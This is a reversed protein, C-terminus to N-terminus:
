KDKLPLQKPSERLQLDPPIHGERWLVLAIVISLVVRYWAFPIFNNTRVFQLLWKVAIFATIMSIVFGLALEGMVAPIFLGARYADWAMYLSAALMTPVGLLFSFETASVRSLGCLMAAIITAGSRSTGPLVAAIIQSIGVWIVINWTITETPQYRKLFKEAVFIALAGLWLAVLIPWLKVPLQFGAWKAILCGVVTVMLAVLIKLLYDRQKPERFHVCLDKLREWYILIVASVAGFQIMVNFADPKSGLFYEAILLHATSSIPLFETIGEVIGLLIIDLFNVM